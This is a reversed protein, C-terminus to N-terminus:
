LQQKQGVGCGSCHPDMGHRRSVGCSVAISSGKVWQALGPILGTDEHNSTPDVVQQAVIPVGDRTKEVLSQQSIPTRPPVKLEKGRM